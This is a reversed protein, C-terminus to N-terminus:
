QDTLTRLDPGFYPMAASGPGPCFIEWPSGTQGVDRRAGAAHPRNHEAVQRGAPRVNRPMARCAATIRPTLNPAVAASADRPGPTLVKSVLRLAEEYYAASEYFSSCTLPQLCSRAEAAARVESGATAAPIRSRPSFAPPATVSAEATTLPPGPRTMLTPCHIGHPPRLLAPRVLAAPEGPGKGLSWCCTM